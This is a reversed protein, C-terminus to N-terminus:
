QWTEHWRTAYEFDKAVGIKTLHHSLGDPLKLIFNKSLPIETIHKKEVPEFDYVSNVQWKSVFTTKDAITSTVNLHFRHDANKLRQNKQEVLLAGDKLLYGQKSISRKGRKLPLSYKSHIFGLMGHYKGGWWLADFLEKMFEKEDSNFPKNSKGKCTLYDITNQLLRFSSRSEFVAVKGMHWVPASPINVRSELCQNSKAILKKLRM